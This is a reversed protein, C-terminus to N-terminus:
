SLTSSARVILQGIPTGDSDTVQVWVRGGPNIQVEVTVHEAPTGKPGAIRITDESKTVSSYPDYHM